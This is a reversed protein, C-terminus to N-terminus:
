HTNRKKHPIFYDSLLFAHKLSSNPHFDPYVFTKDAQNIRNNRICKLLHVTDFLLYIRDIKYVPNVINPMLSDSGSLEIFMKRNIINNDSIIAVSRYCLTVVNKIVEQTITYLDHATMKQVPVLSVVDNNPSLVSEIILIQIM